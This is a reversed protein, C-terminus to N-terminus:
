RYTALRRDLDGSLGHVLGVARAWVLRCSHHFPVGHAMLLEAISLLQDVTLAFLGPAGCHRRFILSNRADLYPSALSPEQWAMAQGCLFVKWGRARLQHCLDIDEWYLFYDERFGGVDVFASRRVLLAAGDLWAVDVDDTPVSEHLTENARLHLPRRRRKTFSGGASWITDAQSLRGLVPGVAGISPSSCLTAYLHALASPALSCEHTLFLIAKSDVHLRSAGFNMGAGFGDNRRARVLRAPPCESVAKATADDDGANDVVVIEVPPLTSELLASLTLALCPGPRHALIVVSVGIPSVPPVPSDPARRPRPRVGNTREV